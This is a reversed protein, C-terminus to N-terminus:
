NFFTRKTTKVKKWIYLYYMFVLYCKLFQAVFFLCFDERVWRGIVTREWLFMNTNTSENFGAKDTFTLLQIKGGELM